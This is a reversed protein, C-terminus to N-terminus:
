RCAQTQSVTHYMTCMLSANWYTCADVWTGSAGCAPVADLWGTCSGMSCSVKSPFKQTTFGDCNYDFSSGGTTTTYPVDFFMTQKSNVTANGDHCDGGCTAAKPGDGDKDGDFAAHSCAGSACRDETCANKDDCEPDGTCGTDVLQTDPGLVSDTASGTDMLVLSDAPPADLAGGGADDTAADGAPDVTTFDAPCGASALAVLYPVVRAFEALSRWSRGTHM